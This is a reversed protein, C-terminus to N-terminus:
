HGVLSRDRDDVDNAPDLIACVNKWVDLSLEHPAAVLDLVEKVAQHPTVRDSREQEPLDCIGSPRAKAEVVKNGIKIYPLGVVFRGIEDTVAGDLRHEVALLAHSREVYRHSSRQRLLNRAESPVIWCRELLGVEMEIKQRYIAVSRWVLSHVVEPKHRQRFCRGLVSGSTMKPESHAIYKGEIGLRQIVLLWELRRSDAPVWDSPLIPKAQRCLELWNLSWFKSEILRISLSLRGSIDKTTVM